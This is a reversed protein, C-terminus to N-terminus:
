ADASVAEGRVGAEGPLSRRDRRNEVISRGRRADPDGLGRRRRPSALRALGLEVEVAAAARRAARRLAPSLGLGPGIEGPEVAVLTCAPAAGTLRAAALLDALGIEHVSLRRGGRAAVDRILRITGARAGLDAADVVILRELGIVLDLLGLGLTGGDVFRVARAEPRDTWREALRRVVEVGIGEDRLLVNGLGLVVVRTPGPEGVSGARWDPSLAGGRCGGGPGRRREGRGSGSGSVTPGSM